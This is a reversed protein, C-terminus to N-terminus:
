LKTVAAINAMPLLGSISKLTNHESSQICSQELMSHYMLDFLVEINGPICHCVSIYYCHHNWNSCIDHEIYYNM